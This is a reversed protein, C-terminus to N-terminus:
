RGQQKIPVARGIADLVAPPGLVAAKTAGPTGYWLREVPGYRTWGLKRGSWGGGGHEASVPGGHYKDDLGYHRRYLQGREVGRPKVVNFPSDVFVRPVTADGLVREPLNPVGLRQAVSQVAPIQSVLKARRPAISHHGMTTFDREALYAAQEPTGGMRLYKAPGAKALRGLDVASKLEGAVPLAVTGVNYLAEGQNMGINFRRKMEDSLTGAVPTADANLDRNWRAGTRRVDAWLLDVNSRRSRAYDVVGQATDAVARMAAEHGAAQRNVLNWALSAGNAIAQGDHVVGRGLGAVAGIDGVIGGAVSKAAPSDDLGRLGRRILDDSEAKRREAELERRRRAVYQERTEM